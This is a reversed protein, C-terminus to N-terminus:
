PLLSGILRTVEEKATSPKSIEEWYGPMLAAPGIASGLPIIDSEHVNESLKLIDNLLQRDTQEPLDGYKLLLSLKQIVNLFM